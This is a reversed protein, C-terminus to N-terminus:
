NSGTEEASAPIFCHRPNAAGQEVFVSEVAIGLVEPKEYTCFVSTPASVERLFYDATLLKRMAPDEIPELVFLKFKRRYAPVLWAHQIKAARIRGKVPAGALVDKAEITWGIWADMCIEDRPCPIEAAISFHGIAKGLVVTPPADASAVPSVLLFLAALNRLLKM